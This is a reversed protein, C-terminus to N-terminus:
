PKPAGVTREVLCALKRHNIDSLREILARTSEPTWDVPYEIGEWSAQEQIARIERAHYLQEPECVQRMFSIADSGQSGCFHEYLALVCAVSAQTARHGVRFPRQAWEGHAYADRYLASLPPREGLYRRSLYHLGGENRVFVTAIWEQSDLDFAMWVRSNPTSTLTARNPHFLTM